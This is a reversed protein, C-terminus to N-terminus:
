CAGVSAQVTVGLEAQVQGGASPLVFHSPGKRGIVYALIVLQVVRKILGVKHSKILVIQPTDHEFLFFYSGAM